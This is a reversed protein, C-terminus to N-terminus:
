VIHLILVRVRVCMSRCRCLTKVFKTVYLSAKIVFWSVGYHSHTNLALAVTLTSAYSVM